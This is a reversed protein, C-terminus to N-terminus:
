RYIILMWKFLAIIIYSKNFHLQVGILFQKWKAMPYWETIAPPLPQNWSDHRQKSDSTNGCECANRTCECCRLPSSRGFWLENMHNTDFHCAFAQTKVTIKIVVVVIVVFRYSRTGTIVVFWWWKDYNGFPFIAFLKLKNLILRICSFCKFNFKCHSHCRQLVLM